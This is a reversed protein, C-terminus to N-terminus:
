SEETERVLLAVDLGGGLLDDLAVQGTFLRGRLRDRWVGPPMALTAGAHGRRRQVGLALRPVVTIAAGARIFAVASPGADLPQYAGEAGFWAPHASRLRLAAAVVAQKPDSGDALSTRRADYDVPRRNDPDVLDLTVWESGQYVDPVGPMTLQVLKMALSTALAAPALEAVYGDLEAIVVPDALGAHVLHQVAADYGADPETWSTHLKAERCAKELYASARDASIPWTGVLTQLLLYQTGGDVARGTATAHPELASLLRAAVEAWGAADESLLVLRARVDESRKTDHTSLTTMSMPWSAQAAACADHFEKLGVGFRGPDGGVENLADLRHYRYFATDEVGKAMVPGCTQQFRTVLEAPGRLVLDAVLRIERARGPAAVVAAELAHSVRAVSEPPPEVGPTVYARYVDFGVLLEVVADHLGRDTVDSGAPVAARLLRVLRAVEAGLVRDVVLRKCATVVDAYPALEDSLRQWLGTLPQEGGPDVFLGVVRNLVDYGTTGATAWGAPLDEGPELIKEVVTWVAGSAAALRDLYGAPDALGDPHDIRLGDLVGDRVQALVLAHSAEFVAPDEVRIGALSTVDFFRRYNLEDNAVHWDALRYHEEAPLPAEHDYYRLRDGDRRLADGVEDRPTGLVPVLVRGGQADWDVDFWSDYTSGRGERLLGWWQANQSEPEGVAMHNPVIDLVMGLGAARVAAVLRAHADPGGLEANVRSHDVVDYGHLSGPAAQLWPSCYVHSVGLDALYPVVAAAADFGFSPTLQLRYTSSPTPM